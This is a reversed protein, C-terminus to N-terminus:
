VDFIVLKYTGGEKADSATNMPRELVISGKCHDFARRISPLVVLELIDNNAGSVHLHVHLHLHIERHILTKSERQDKIVTM